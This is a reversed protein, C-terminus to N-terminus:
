KLDTKGSDQISKIELSFDIGKSLIAFVEKDFTDSNDVGLEAEDLIEPLEGFVDLFLNIFFKGIMALMVAKFQWKLIKPVLSYRLQVEPFDSILRGIVFNRYFKEFWGWLSTIISATIGVVVLLGVKVAMGIVVLLITCLVIRKLARFERKGELLRNLFSRTENKPILFGQFRNRVYVYDADVSRTTKSTYWSGDFRPLIGRGLKEKTKELSKLWSKM